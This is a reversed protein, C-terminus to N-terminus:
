TLDRPPTGDCLVHKGAALADVSWRHHLSIPLPNYVADIAPDHIVERYSSHVVPIAHERAFTEARSLDRAAICRIAARPEDACPEVLANPVIRAAGLVGFAIM